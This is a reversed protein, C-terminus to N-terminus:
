LEFYKRLKDKILFMIEINEQIKQIDCNNYNDLGFYELSPVLNNKYIKCGRKIFISVIEIFLDDQLIYYSQRPSAILCKIFENIGETPCYGDNLKNVISYKLLELDYDMFDGIEEYEDYGTYIGMNGTLYKNLGSFYDYWKNLKPGELFVPDILYENM